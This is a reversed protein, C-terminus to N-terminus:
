RKHLLVNETNHADPQHAYDRTTNHKSPKSNLMSDKQALRPLETVVTPRGSALTVVCCVFLSATHKSRKSSQVRGLLVAMM